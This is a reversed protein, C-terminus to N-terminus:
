KRQEKNFLYSRGRKTILALPWLLALQLRSFFLVLKQEFLLVAVARIILLSTVLAWANFVVVVFRNM